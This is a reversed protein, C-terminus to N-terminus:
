ARRAFGTPGSNRHIRFYHLGGSIIRLPRDDLHFGDAAVELRPM